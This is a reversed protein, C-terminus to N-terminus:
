RKLQTETIKTGLTLNYSLKLVGGSGTVCALFNYKATDINAYYYQGNIENIGNSNECFKTFYKNTKANIGLVKEEVSFVCDGHIFFNGYESYYNEQASRITALLAYGEAMKFNKTNNKYIPVSVSMLIIVVILTIAMEVLTFGKQKKM